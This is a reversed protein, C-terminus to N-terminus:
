SRSREKALRQYRVLLYVPVSDTVLTCQVLSYMPLPTLLLLTLNPTRYTYM